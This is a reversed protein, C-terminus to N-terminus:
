KHHDLFYVIDDTNPISGGAYGQMQSVIQRWQADSLKGYYQTATGLSHCSQCSSVFLRYGNDYKAQDISQVTTQTKAASTSHSHSVTRTQTSSAAVSKGQKSEKLNASKAGQALNGTVSLGKAKQLTSTTTTQQTKTKPRAASHTGQGAPKRAATAVPSVAHTAPWAMSGGTHGVATLILVGSVALILYGASPRWHRRLRWFLMVAYWATFLFALSQHLTLLGHPLYAGRQVKLWEGSLVAVLTGLFGLIMILRNAPNFMGIEARVSHRDNKSISRLRFATICDFLVGICFLAIPFHVVLPHLPPLRYMEKTMSALRLISSSLNHM